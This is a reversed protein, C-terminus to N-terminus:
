AAPRRGIRPPWRLVEGTQLILVQLEVFSNISVHRALFQEMVAGFLYVGTGSFATLDLRMTVQVGRGFVIPGAQPMQRHVPTVAMSRIGKIQQQLGPAALGAYLQLLERLAQAGSDGDLDTLTLYNLHLHSILRWTTEGEAVAPRPPSPGRILKIREVPASIRLTFDSDEQLPLLLPLDRNTCLAEVAISRLDDAFPAEAQDVLSLHVESGLYGSRSSGRSPHEPLRRPERRASFYAPRDEAGEHRGYFPQFSLAEGGERRYGTVKRVAYVEYDLPRTRDMVLHQEYRQSSVALRDSRKEFLNIVPTCYLALSDAGVTQELDPWPTDFLIDLEVSPGKLGRLVDQMADLTFFLFREPFAFYEHLLRHGHFARRDCPLMAEDPDMGCPRIATAPLWHGHRAGPSRAVVGLSHGLIRELLLLAHREQGALHFSLRRVPLEALENLGVGDLRLRLVGRVEAALPLSSLSLDGLEAEGGLVELRLPWLQVEHATRFECATQEGRSLHARLLTGAPLVYGQALSGERYGPEMQVIGMAPTPALYHPCVIDLLRQSFRPFEADMKLQIRATLFSVGELLREVYPDPVETGRLGLRGAVKPYERAFEAGMERFYTLERNYYDLLRGDM